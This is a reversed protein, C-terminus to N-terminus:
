CLLGSVYEFGRKLCEIPNGEHTEQEALLYKAGSDACVRAIPAFDTKGEGVICLKGDANRDKFHVIDIRGSHAAIFRTPSLGADNLQCVDACLRLDPVEALLKECLYADNDFDRRTPHYSLRYGSEALENLKREFQTIDESIGSVCIEKIDCIAALSRYYDTCAFIDPSKDQIGVSYIGYQKLLRAITDASIEPAIWQLQTICCGFGQMSSLVTDLGQSDIMLPKFSSLQIGAQMASM